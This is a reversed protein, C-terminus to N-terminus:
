LSIKSKYDIIVDSGPLLNRDLDDLYPVDVRTQDILSTDMEAVLVDETNSPSEILVEGNPAVFKSKGCSGEHATNVGLVFVTNDLARAPLQIDWRSEAPISWVSPCIILEAGQLALIRSPEPFEIDACILIGIKGVSTSVVEYQRTGPTFIAKERGWLFSKRYTSVVEGNKEIVASAIFLDGDEEEVFPVVLVVNLEKALQQFLSVTKGNPKEGFRDFEERSLYYGSIWLEPLAILQAGQEAAQRIMSIACNTNAEGKNPKAHMQVAAIKVM